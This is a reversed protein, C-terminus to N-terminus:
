LPCWVPVSKIEAKVRYPRIGCMVVNNKASVKTCVVKVDDDCFWDLPDPDPEVRHHPCDLCSLITLQKPM